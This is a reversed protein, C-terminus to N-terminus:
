RFVKQPSSVAPRIIAMGIVVPPVRDDWPTAIRMPALPEIRYDKLPLVLAAPPGLRRPDVIPWVILAGEATLRSPTIWPSRSMMADILVSPRPTMFVALGGATDKDGAIITLPHGTLRLWNRQVDGAVSWYPIQEKGIRHLVRPGIVPDLVNGLPPALLVVAFLALAFKPRAIAISRQACAVVSPGVLIFMSGLAEPRTLVGSVACFVLGAALPGATAAILLTTDFTSREPLAIAVARQATTFPLAALLLVALGIHFAIQGGLVEFPVVLHDLLSHPHPRDLAYYTLSSSDHHVLQLFQWALLALTLAIGAIAQPTKLTARSSAFCLAHVALTGLLLAGTFKTQMLLEAVVAFAIWNGYSQTLIARRYCLVALAWFPLQAINHNFHGLPTMVYWSGLSLMVAIAAGAPGLIPRCLREVIWLAWAVFVVGLMDLAFTSHATLDYVAESLWPPLAPHKWYSLRWEHGMLLMEYTDFRLGAFTLWQVLIAAALAWSAVFVALIPPVAGALRQEIGRVQASEGDMTEPDM